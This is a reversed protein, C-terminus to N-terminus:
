LNYMDELDALEKQLGNRISIKPEYQLLKGAKAINAWTHKPEGRPEGMYQLAAKQGTLEELIATVELISAREKGGINITEGAAHPYRLLSATAEVCDDIYTFDRTQTGDGHVPIPKGRLMHHIFRHFAMDSRQRPGYVTFYRLIVIPIQMQKHYVRCLHEGCLKSVGYPSLPSPAADESVMEKTEGYVSSTSAYIFAQLPADKCAELMQQTVLINNTVYSQFDDGWSSRVGPIGALHYVADVDPLWKKWEFDLLNQEFNFFRPHGSLNQINRQKIWRLEPQILGDIGMVENRDDQLLRECLHSGIFGAAGTVIIRM